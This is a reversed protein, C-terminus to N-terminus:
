GPSAIYMEIGDLCENHNQAETPSCSPEVGQQTHIMVEPQDPFSFM